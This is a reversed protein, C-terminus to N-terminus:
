KFDINRATRSSVTALFGEFLIQELLDSDFQGDNKCYSIIKKDCDKTSTLLVHGSGNRVCFLYISSTNKLATKITDNENSM